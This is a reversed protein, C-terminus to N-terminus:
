FGKGGGGHSSGSSGIHTNSAAAEDAEKIAKAVQKISNATNRIESQIKINQQKYENLKAKYADAAAGEWVGEISSLQKEITQLIESCEEAVNELKKAQLIASAYDISIFM